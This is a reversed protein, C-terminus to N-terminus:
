RPLAPQTAASAALANRPTANTARTHGLLWTYLDNTAYAASWADHGTDPYVTFKVEAGLAQLAKVMRDSEWFPVTSDKAGHFTWVPIRSLRVAEDPDGGGCIPAIAAFRDPFENALAWTGYGGMSMGTVYLRDPDVRYRAESEDLLRALEYSSWWEGEPCQPAIVIFPFTKRFAADYQLRSLLGAEQLLNLNDGREGKGHLFLITPWRKDASKDYDSPLYVLHRLAPQGIKQKLGAWWKRDMAEPTNRLSADTAPRTGPATTAARTEFLGALLVATDNDRNMGDDRLLEKFYRSIAKQQLKMAAVSIGMEKPLRVTVPIDTNRWSFDKRERFLTRFYKYTKSPDEEPRVEIVAGYRGPNEATDVQNYKADYWTIKTEYAGILDEVHSPDEYDGEPFARSSFVCPKFVFEEYPMVWQAVRGPDPLDAVALRRGDVSVDLLGYGGGGRAAMPLSIIASALEPRVFDRDLKSTAILKREGNEFASLEISKGTLSPDATVTVRTSHFRPYSGYAAVQVPAVNANPGALRLRHVKTSDEATRTSPFWVLKSSQGSADVDNVILQFGLERGVPPKSWGLNSWPILAEIIYGGDVKSRAASIKPPAAKLKPDHRLDFGRTRLRPHTPDLGPGVTLRVMEQSGVGTALFFEISDGDAPNASEMLVDDRVTVLALLGRDNWGLRLTADIDNRAQVKGSTNALTCVNLGREEWDAASGDISIQDLRPVDFIPLRSPDLAASLGSKNPGFPRQTSVALLPQGRGDGGFKVASTWLAWTAVGAFLVVALVIAASRRM